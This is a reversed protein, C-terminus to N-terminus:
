PLISCGPGYCGYTLELVNASINIM